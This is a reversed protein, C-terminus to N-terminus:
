SCCCRVAFCSQRFLGPPRCAQELGRYADARRELVDPLRPHRSLVEDFAEIAAQYQEGELSRVGRAYTARLAEDLVAQADQLALAHSASLAISAISVLLVGANLRLRHM